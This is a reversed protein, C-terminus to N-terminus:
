AHEDSSGGRPAHCRSIATVIGSVESGTPATDFASFVILLSGMVGVVWPALVDSLFAKAGIGSV